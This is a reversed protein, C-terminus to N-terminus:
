IVEYKLNIASNHDEAGNEFRATLVALSLRDASKIKINDALELEHIHQILWTVMEDLKEDAELREADNSPMSRYILEFDYTALYGGCIYQSVIYPTKKVALAIGYNESLYEMNVKEPKDEYSNLLAILARSIQAPTNDNVLRHPKNSDM